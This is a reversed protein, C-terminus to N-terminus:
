RKCRKEVLDHAVVARTQEDQEAGDAEDEQNGTRVDRPQQQRTARGARAFHGDAGGDAGAPRMEDPLAQGLRQQEREGAPEGTDYEGIPSDGGDHRESRGVYGTKRARPDVGGHEGKGQQDRQRAADDEAQSRRKAHSATRRVLSQLLSSPGARADAAIPQAAREDDRLDCEREDKKGAGAEEDSATHREVVDVRSEIRM